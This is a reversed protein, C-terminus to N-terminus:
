ETQAAEGTAAASTDGEGAFPDYEDHMQQAQALMKTRAGEDLLCAVLLMAHAKSPQPDGDAEEVPKKLEAAIARVMWPVLKADIQLEACKAYVMKRQNDTPPVDWSEAKPAQATKYGYVVPGTHPPAQAAVSAQSKEEATPKAKKESVGKRADDGDSDRVEGHVGVQFVKIYAYKTASTIAKNIGKDDMNLAEGWFPLTVRHGSHTDCFHFLMQVRVRAQRKESGNDLYSVVSATDAVQAVEHMIVLGARICAARVAPVVDDWSQYNFNHHQNRGKKEVHGVLAIVRAIKAFVGADGDPDQDPTREDEIQVDTPPQAPAAGDSPKDDAKRGKKPKQETASAQDTTTSEDHAM